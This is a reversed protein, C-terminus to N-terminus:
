IGLLKRTLLIRKSFMTKRPIGCRLYMKNMHSKVTRLSIGLQKAIAPNGHGKLLELAVEAERVTLQDLIESNMEEGCDNRAIM